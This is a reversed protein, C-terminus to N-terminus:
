TRNELAYHFGSIRTSKLEDALRKPERGFGVTFPMLCDGIRALCTRLSCHIERQLLLLEIVRRPTLANHYVKQYVEVAGVSRLITSCPPYDAEGHRVEHRPLHNAKLVRIIHNGRELFSGLGILRSV